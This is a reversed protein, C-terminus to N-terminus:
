YESIQIIAGFGGFLPELNTRNPSSFLSKLLTAKKKHETNPM